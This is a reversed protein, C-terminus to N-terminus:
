SEGGTVRKVKVVKLHTSLYNWRAYLLLTATTEASDTFNNSFSYSM